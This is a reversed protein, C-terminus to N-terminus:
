VRRLFPRVTAKEAPKEPETKEDAAQDAQMAALDGLTINSLKITKQTSKTVVVSLTFGHEELLSAHLESGFKAKFLRIIDDSTLELEMRYDGMQRMKQCWAINIHGFGTFLGPSNRYVYRQPDQSVSMESVDIDVLETPGMDRAWGRVKIKM